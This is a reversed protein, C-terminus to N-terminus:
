FNLVIRGRLKGELIQPALTLVDEVPHTTTLSQLLAPDLDTELRLWTPMRVERPLMVSDIGALTVGRLIFPAVFGPLDMGQALGCAAVVGGYMTQSIIHALTTSGAVDVAGAWRERALPKVAGSFADRGIIESAGLEELYQHEETRGTSAVVQYGLKALIAVAISGVGGVAGTVLIPGKDPRIGGDELAQICLMATFGATGIAMTQSATFGSPKPVLWNGNVRAFESYGGFHSEGVGCGNLIVDDGPEFDPNDSTEVVGAFDIGPIMPWRRIVPARGTVALGDKYNITTQTVRVTVDGEMLDELGLEAWDATQGQETKSVLLAKFREM